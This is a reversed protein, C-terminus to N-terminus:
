RTACARTSLAIFGEDPMVLAYGNGCRELDIPRAIASHNLHRAIAFQNRFHVLESLSPHEYRLVKIVVLQQQEGWLARYVDTRTSRFIKEIITYGPIFPIKAIATNM